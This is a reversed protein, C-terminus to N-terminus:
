PLHDKSGDFCEEHNNRTMMIGMGLLELDDWSEDCGTGVFGLKEL